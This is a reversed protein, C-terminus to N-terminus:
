ALPLGPASAAVLIATFFVSGILAIANRSLSEIRVYM